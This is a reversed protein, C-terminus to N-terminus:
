QLRSQPSFDSVAPRLGLPNALDDSLDPFRGADFDLGGVFPRAAGRLERGSVIKATGAPLSEALCTNRWEDDAPHHSVRGPFRGPLVISGAVNLVVGFDQRADEPGLRARFSNRSRTASTPMGLGKVAM